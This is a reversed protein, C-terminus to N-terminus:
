ARLNQTCPCLLTLSWLKPRLVWHENPIDACVKRSILVNKYIKRESRSGDEDQVNDRRFARVLYPHRGIHRKM